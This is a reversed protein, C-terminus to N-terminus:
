DRIKSTFALKGFQNFGLLYGFSTTVYVTGNAGVAPAAAVLGYYLSLSCNWLQTVTANM